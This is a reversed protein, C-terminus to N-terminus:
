ILALAALNAIPGDLLDLDVATAVGQVVGSESHQWITWTSWGAPLSRRRVHSRPLREAARAASGDKTETGEKRDAFKKL